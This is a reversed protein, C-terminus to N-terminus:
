LWRYSWIVAVTDFDNGFRASVGSTFAIRVGSTRSIPIGAAAGFRISRGENNKPDGNVITQGGVTHGLSVGAWAGRNGFIYIAHGQLVWMPDQEIVNGGFSESNTSFLWVSGFAEFM